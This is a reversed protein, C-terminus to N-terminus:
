LYDETACVLLLSKIGVTDDEGYKMSPKAYSITRIAAVSRSVSASKTASSTRTTDHMMMRTDYHIEPTTRASRSQGQQIHV